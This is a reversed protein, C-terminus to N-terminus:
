VIGAQWLASAGLLVLCIGVMRTAMYFLMVRGEDCSVDFPCFLCAVGIFCCVFGPLLPLSNGIVRLCVESFWPPIM